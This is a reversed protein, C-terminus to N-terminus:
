SFEMGYVLLLLLLLLLLLALSNIARRDRTKSPHGRVAPLRRNVDFGRNKLGWVRKVLAVIRDVCNM